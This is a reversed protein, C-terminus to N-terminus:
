RPSERVTSRMGGDKSQLSPSTQGSPKRGRQQQQGGGAAQAIAAKIGEWAFYKDLVTDFKQRSDIGFVHAYTEIRGFNPIDFAEAITEPDIPFGRMFLQMYLLRNTMQTMQHASYPKVHAYFSDIHARARDVLQVSSPQSPSLKGQKILAFENPTHSPIMNSPDYDMSEETAGDAGLMTVVRRTDYFEFATGKWMDTLERISGEMNRAKDGTRPGMLEMLRELTDGSPVQKASAMSQLGRTGLLSPIFETLSKSFELIWTPLNYYEAPLIPKLPEGMQMNVRIRQGPKRPNLREALAKSLNEDHALPPDLRANASDDMARLIRTLSQQPSQVDRVLSLGLFDWPWDDLKFQVIPVKRHWWPSTNDDLLGTPTVTLLRRMPYLLCDEWEAKRYTAHGAGDYLGSPIEQGLYPVKYFWKTGPAGMPVEYDTENVSLDLIYIYYIPVTPFGADDERNRDRESANLAPSQFKLKRMAKRFWGPRDGQPTLLAAKTPWKSLARNLGMEVKIAVAYADQLDHDPGIQIPLVNRPGHPTLVIDGRGATWFDKKWSMSVYGSAGVAAYQLASRIKRDSMTNLYWARQMRNLVSAQKDLDKNDTKLEGLLRVNSLSAVIESIDRKVLNIRVHSLSKSLQEDEGLIVGFASDIDDYGRQSELYRQGEQCAELSWGFVDDARIAPPCRYAANAAPNPSELTVPM